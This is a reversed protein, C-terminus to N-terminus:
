LAYRCLQGSADNMAFPGHENGAWTVTKNVTRFAFRFPVTDPNRSREIAGPHHHAVSDIM